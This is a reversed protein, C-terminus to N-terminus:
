HPNELIFAERVIARILHHIHAAAQESTLSTDGTLWWSFLSTYIGVVSEAILPLPIRTSADGFAARLGTEIQSSLLVTVRRLILTMERSFTLDKSLTYYAPTRIDMRRMHTLFTVLSVPPTEALWEARTTMGLNLQKFLTEHMAILLDTKTGFYRYFTSRGVNARETIDGVTLSEYSQERLLSQFAAEIAAKMRQSQREGPKKKDMLDQYSLKLKKNWKSCDYGIASQKAVAAETHQM